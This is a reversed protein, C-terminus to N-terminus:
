HLVSFQILSHLGYIPGNFLNNEHNHAFDVEHM